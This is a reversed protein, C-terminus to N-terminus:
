GFFVDGGEDLRHHLGEQVDDPLRLVVVEGVDDLFHDALVALLDRGDGHVHCLVQDTVKALPM